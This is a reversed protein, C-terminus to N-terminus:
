KAVGPSIPTGLPRDTDGQRKLNMEFTQVPPRDGAIYEGVERWTDSQITATFRIPSVREAVVVVQRSCSRPRALAKM